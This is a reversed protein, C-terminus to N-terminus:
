YLVDAFIPSPAAPNSFSGVDAIQQMVIDVDENKSLHGIWWANAGSWYTVTGDLEFLRGAPKAFPGDVAGIPYLSEPATDNSSLVTTPDLVAAPIPENEAGSELGWQCLCPAILAAFPLLFRMM